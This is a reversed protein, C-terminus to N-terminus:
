QNQKNKNEVKTKAYSFSSLSNYGATDTSNMKDCHRDLGSNCEVFLEIFEARCQCLPHITVALREGFLRQRLPNEFGGTLKSM